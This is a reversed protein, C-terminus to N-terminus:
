CYRKMESIERRPTPRGRQAPPQTSQSLNWFTWGPHWFFQIEAM